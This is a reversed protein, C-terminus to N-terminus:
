EATKINTKSLAQSLPSTGIDSRANVDVGRDVLLSIYTLDHNAAAIQLPTQNLKDSTSAPAGNELLLSLCAPSKPWTAYHLPSWHYNPNSNRAGHNLLSELASSNSCEAAWSVPTRGESDGVNIISTSVELEDEMSQTPLLDLATKHLVSFQREDLWEDYNFTEKLAAAVDAPLSKSCVRHIAQDTVNVKNFAAISPHAGASILFKYLEPHGRLVACHLPTFGRQDQIDDPSASGQDFLKAVGGINGAEHLSFIASDNPVIRPTMLTGTIRGYCNKEIVSFVEPFLNLAALSNAFDLRLVKLSECLEGVRRKARTWNFRDLLQPKLQAMKADDEGSEKLKQPAVGGIECLEKIIRDRNEQTVIDLATLITQLRDLEEILALIDDPARSLERLFKFGKALRRCASVFCVASTAISLPEM